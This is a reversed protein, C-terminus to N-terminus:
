ALDILFPEIKPLRIFNCFFSIKTEVGAVTVSIKKDHQQHLFIDSVNSTGYGVIKVDTIGWFELTIQVVNFASTAWKKPVNNPLETIEFRISLKPGDRHLTVEHIKTNLLNPEATYLQRIFEPNHILNTWMILESKRLRIIPRQVLYRVQDKM